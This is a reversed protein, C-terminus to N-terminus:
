SQDYRGGKRLNNTAWLPQLNNLSWCEKVQVPDTHDFLCKPKIHDIHWGSRGYNDWTMGETFQAELHEKLEQLTYDVYKWTSQEKTGKMFLSFQRSINRKMRYLPDNHHKKRRYENKKQNCKDKNNQYYRKVCQKVKEKNNQYYQQRSKLRRERHKLYNKRNDDKYKQPNKKYADRRRKCTCKKCCCQVGLPRQKNPYFESVPKHTHCTNCKQMVIM